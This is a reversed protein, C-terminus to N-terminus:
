EQPEDKVAGPISPVAEMMHLNTHKTNRRRSRKNSEKKVIRKRVHQKMIPLKSALMKTQLAGPDRAPWDGSNGLEDWVHKARNLVEPPCEIPICEAHLPFAMHKRDVKMYVVKKAAALAELDKMFGHYLEHQVKEICIGEPNEEILKELEAKDKVEFDQRYVLKIFNDALAPEIRVKSHPRRCHDLLEQDISVGTEEQIKNVTVAQGDLKQLFNKVNEYKAIINQEVKKAEGALSVGFMREAFSKKAQQKATGSQSATEGGAAHSPDVDLVITDKEKAEQTTGARAVHTKAAFKSTALLDKKLSSM